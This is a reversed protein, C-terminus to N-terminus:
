IKVTIHELIKDLKENVANIRSDQDELRQQLMGLKAEDTLKKKESELIIPRVGKKIAWEIVIDAANPVDTLDRGEDYILVKNKTIVGNMNLAVYSSAALGNILDQAKFIKEETKDGGLVRTGYYTERHEAVIQGNPVHNYAVWIQETKKNAM